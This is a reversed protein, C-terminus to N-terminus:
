PQQLISEFAKLLGFEGSYKPVYAQVNFVSCLERNQEGLKTWVVVPIKMLWPNQHRIRLFDFGSELGLDLDLLIADPLERGQEHATELLAKATEVSSTKHIFPFGCQIACQEAIREDREDNEIILIQAM